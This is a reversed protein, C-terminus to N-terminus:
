LYNLNQQNNKITTFILESENVLVEKIQEPKKNTALALMKANIDIFDKITGRILVAEEFNESDEAEFQKLNHEVLWESIENEHNM